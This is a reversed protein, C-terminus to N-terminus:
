EQESREIKCILWQKIKLKLTKVISQEYSLGLCYADCYYWRKCTRCNTM